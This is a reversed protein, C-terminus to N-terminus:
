FSYNLSKNLWEEETHCRSCLCILNCLDNALLYNDNVTPIYNFTRFPQIHHVDLHQNIEYETIGCKQCTFNDRKRAIEKQILWNPGYYRKKIGGIWNPNNKELIAQRRRERWESDNWFKSFVVIARERNSNKCKETNRSELLLARSTPNDWRRKTAKSKNEPNAFKGINKDGEMAKSMKLRYQDNTAWRIKNSNSIKTSTEISTIEATPFLNIYDKM